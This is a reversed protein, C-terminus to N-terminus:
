CEGDISCSDGEIIKLEKEKAASKKLVDAFVEIPQAGSIAFERNFIFFPVGRIGLQQAESIDNQVEKKYQNETLAKEAAGPDLGLSQAIEVLTKIDNLDKGETFYSKFLVEEAQNQLKYKAAFHILQHAKLTNAIKAKDFNYELEVEAAIRTVDDHLKESHERSIGKKEALSDIVSGGPEAQASPDLQFSKWVIEVKDKGEFQELALEFKRKGIYCFPCVIDSWIEVKM